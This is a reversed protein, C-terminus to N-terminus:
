LCSLHNLAFNLVFNQTQQFHFVQCHFLRKFQLLKRSPYKWVTRDWNLWSPQIQIWKMQGLKYGGLPIWRTSLNAKDGQILGKRNLSLLHWFLCPSSPPSELCLFCLLYLLYLPLHLLLPHNSMHLFQKSTHQNWRQSIRPQRSQLSLCQSCAAPCSICSHATTCTWKRGRLYGIRSVRWNERIVSIVLRSPSM